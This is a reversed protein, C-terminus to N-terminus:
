AHGDDDIQKKFPRARLCKGIVFVAIWLGLIAAAANILFDPLRAHRGPIWFQVVEIALCFLPLAFVLARFRQHYGCGFALGLILFIALHEFNHSVPTVPRYTAPVIHLGVIIMATLCAALRCLRRM